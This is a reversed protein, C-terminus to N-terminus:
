KDKREKIIEEINETSPIQRLWEPKVIPRNNKDLPPKVVLVVPQSTIDDQNELGWTATILFIGLRRPRFSFEIGKQRPTLIDFAMPHSSVLGRPLDDFGEDFNIPMFPSPYEVNILKGRHRDYRGIELIRHMVTRVEAKMKAPILEELRVTEEPTVEAKELRLTVEVPPAESPKAERCSGGVAAFPVWMAFCALFLTVGMRALM